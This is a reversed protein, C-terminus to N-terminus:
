GADRLSVIYAVLDAVQEDSLRNEPMAVSFGEVVQASPDTIARTLYAEDVVVQSGDTLTVTSGLTGTWAPGVGGQGAAGHCSACGQSRALQQGRGAAPSLGEGSPEDGGCAGVVVAIVALAPVLLRRRV